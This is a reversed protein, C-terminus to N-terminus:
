PCSVYAGAGAPSVQWLWSGGPPLSGTVGGWAGSASGVIAQFEQGCDPSADIRLSASSIVASGSVVFRGSSDGTLVIGGDVTLNSVSVSAGPPIAASGTIDTTGAGSFSATGSVEMLGDALLTAAPGVSVSGDNEWPTLNVQATSSAQVAVQGDPENVLEPTRPNPIQTGMGSADGLSMVGHNVVAGAANALIQAGAAVTVSGDNVLTAYVIVGSAGVTTSTGQSLTFTGPGTIVAGNLLTQGSETFATQVIIVGTVTLPGTSISTNATDTVSLAGSVDLGGTSTLGDVTESGSLTAPLNAAGAPICPWDSPGPVTGTSWNAATDWDSSMAGTFTDTCTGTVLAATAQTITAAAAYDGSSDHAFLAYSYTTGASLSGDTAASTTGSTDEVLTGATASLPPNAGPTRRIMVGSFTADAPNTWSLGISAQTARTVQLESVQGPAGPDATAIALTAPGGTDGIGDVAFVAYSYVTSATLGSDTYGIVFPGLTAVETGATVSAPPTSGAARRIVVDVLNKATPLTWALGVSSATAASVTLGGVVPAEDSMYYGVEDVVLNLHGASVALAILGDLGPPVSVLSTATGGRGVSLSATAPDWAGYPYATVQSDASAGTATVELLVATVGSSPVASTGLVEAALPKGAAVPEQIAGTGNVTSVIRAPTVPVYVSGPTGTLPDYGVVDVTVGTDGGAAAISVKGDSGPGVVVLGTAAVGKAYGVATVKPRAQGAPYVTLSGARAPSTASVELVVAGVGSAPVGGEGSVLVSAAAGAKLRSVTALRSATVPIFAEGTSTIGPQTDYGVVGASVRVTGASLALDVKGGSGPAVVILETVNAGKAYSVNTIGPEGGGDPYAVLHGAASAGSLRVELAVAAVGSAPVGGHGTVAVAQPSGAEVPTGSLLQSASVPTFGDGAAALAPSQIVVGGGGEPTLTPKPTATPAPTATPTASGGPTASGTPAPTVTPGASGTPAPTVTPGASGTPAPTVTPGASGTPAPTVTPGASGGPSASGGPAALVGPAALGSATVPNGPVAFVARVALMGALLAALAIPVGLLVPRSVRRIRLRRM